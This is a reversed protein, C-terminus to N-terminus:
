GMRGIRSARRPECLCVECTASGHEGLRHPTWGCNVCLAIPLLDAEQGKISTVRM